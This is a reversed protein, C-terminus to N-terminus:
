TTGGEQELEELRAELMQDHTAEEVGGAVLQEGLSEEEDGVRPARQGTNEAVVEWEEQLNANEKTEEPPAPVTAGLLEQRAQEWDADTFSDPDREAILAIERARKEVEEPGAVGFGNGHVEIKGTGPQSYENM